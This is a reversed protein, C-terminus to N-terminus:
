VCTRFCVWLWSGANRPGRGPMWDAEPSARCSAPQGRGGGSAHRRPGGRRGLAATGQSALGPGHAWGPGRHPRFGSVRPFLASPLLPLTRELPPTLRCPLRPPPQSLSMGHTLVARRLWRPRPAAHLRCAGGGPLLPCLSGWEELDSLGAPLTPDHSHWWCHPQWWGM